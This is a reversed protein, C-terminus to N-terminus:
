SLIKIWQHKVEQWDFLEVKKRANIIMQDTLLSENRLKKIARVFGGADNPAVLMGEVQNTILFPLGGVNTSIVPLGLAMAEIVSVPTNDVNTTNIFVNYHKSLEIWEKKPLIGTFKVNIKFKKALVQAEKLSGDNDPGVMCLEAEINEDKLAKLIKIALTPNYINTFSRVWLLKIKDICRQNFAYNKLEITNPIYKLNEYGEKEFHSMLYNSPAVNLYANKFIFNSLRPSKKLRNPLEGGHLIPIYKLNFTSCLKSCLYAYYFNLTSYTDILVYDTKKRNIVIHYLMDLLRIIKSRKNSATVVNFKVQKLNESLTEITTVTKNAQQLKNGIYLLNKM